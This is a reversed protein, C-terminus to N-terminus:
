AAALVELSSVGNFDIGQRKPLTNVKAVPVNFLRMQIFTCRQHAYMVRRADVAMMMQVGQPGVVSSACRIPLLTYIALWLQHEYQIKM